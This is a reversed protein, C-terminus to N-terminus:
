AAMKFPASALSVCQDSFGHHQPPVAPEILTLLPKGCVHAYGYAEWVKVENKVVKYNIRTADPDSYNAFIWTSSDAVRSATVAIKHGAIAKESWEAMTRNRGFAQKLANELRGASCQSDAFMSILFGLCGGVRGPLIHQRPQFAKTALEEFIGLAQTVDWGNLYLGLAVLGGLFLINNGPEQKKTVVSFKKGSSTGVCLDFHEQIRLPLGICREVQQLAQLPVM